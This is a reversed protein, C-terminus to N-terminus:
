LTGPEVGKYFAGNIKAFLVIAGTATTSEHVEGELFSTPGGWHEIEAAVLEASTMLRLPGYTATAEGEDDGHYISTVYLGDDESRTEYKVSDAMDTSFLKPFYSTTTTM